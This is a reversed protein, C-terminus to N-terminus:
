SSATVVVVVVVVVVAAAAAAAAVLVWLTLRVAVADAFDIRVNDHKHLRAHGGACPLAQQYCM